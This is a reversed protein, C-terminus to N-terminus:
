VSEKGNPSSLCSEDCNGWNGRIHNGAETVNTSCWPKYKTYQKMLDICSDYVIERYKFPFKCPLGSGPGDVALCDRGKKCQKISSCEKEECYTNPPCDEDKDCATKRVTCKNNICIEELRCDSQHCLKFNM